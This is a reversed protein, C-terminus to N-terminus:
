SAASVGVAMVPDIVVRGAMHFEKGGVFAFGFKRYFAIARENREYVGLWITRGGLERVHDQVARMLQAGHGRGVSAQALYLRALEMPAAGTVCGPPTSRLVQAYGALRDDDFGLLVTSAPDRIWGEVAAPTFSEAVYREIDKGDDIDRYADRFATAAFAALASANGPVAIRLRLPATM